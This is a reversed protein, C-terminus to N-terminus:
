QCGSQELWGGVDGLDAPTGGTALYFLHYDSGKVALYARTDSYYRYRYDSATASVAGAPSLFTEYHQEAWNFLCDSRTQAMSSLGPSLHQTPKYERFLSVGWTWISGDDKMAFKALVGIWLQKFGSGIQFPVYYSQWRSNQQDDAGLDGGMNDGWAWLTGDAKIAFSQRYGAGVAVYGDGIKQPRSAWHNTNTGLQGGDNFGWNWLSGDAKLGMAFNSGASVQLFDSGIQTATAECIIAANTPNCSTSRGTGLQHYSNNGWAWLSGDSRLGYFSDAYNFISAYASGVQKPTTSFTSSVSGDGFNGYLSSGWAWLSGDAKSAFNTEGFGWIRVFDAESGIRSNASLDWITGDTKLGIYGSIAQYGSGFSEALGSGWRSLAHVTGDAKLVFALNYEEVSSIQQIDTAIESGGSQSLSWLSGDARLVYAANTTALAVQPEVAGVSSVFLSFLVACGLRVFGLSGFASVQLHM